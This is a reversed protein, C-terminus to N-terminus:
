VDSELFQAVDRWIGDLHELLQHGDDVVNLNVWPRSAAYREVMACEVVEDGRGQYILTPTRDEGGFPAYGRADTMFGWNLPRTRNDGYHFVDLQGRQEWEAMRAPGFEAELGCVIDFAPALLVLRDVPHVQSSARTARRAAAHVAVFGGLSSGVLAVPGAPMADIAADVQDLMRTVTLTSFEPLNLDPCTFPVGAARAREGFYRAKSSRPSSAFGHLYLAARRTM